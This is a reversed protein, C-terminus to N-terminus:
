TEARLFEVGFGMSSVIDAPDASSSAESALRVCVLFSDVGEPVDFTLNTETRLNLSTGSIRKILDPYTESVSEDATWHIVCSYQNNYVANRDTISLKIKATNTPLKIGYVGGPIVTSINSVYKETQQNGTGKVCIYKYDVSYGLLGSSSNYSLSAFAYSPIYALAVSVTVTATQNGCTATITCTGLGIPTVVGDNVTAVTADSTAWSLTDTTNAPTKTATVTVPTYGTFSISGQSLSLGTCPISEYLEVTTLKNTSFDADRIMLAKSM